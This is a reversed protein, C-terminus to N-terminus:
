WLAVLSDYQSGSAFYTDSLKVVGQTIQSGTTIWIQALGLWGTNGYAPVASKM